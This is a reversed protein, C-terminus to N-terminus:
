LRPKEEELANEESRGLPALTTGKRLSPFKRGIAGLHPVVYRPPSV